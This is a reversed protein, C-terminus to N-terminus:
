IGWDNYNVMNFTKSGDGAGYVTGILKFLDPYEARSIAQGDCFLTGPPPNDARICMVTVGVLGHACTKYFMAMSLEGIMGSAYIM